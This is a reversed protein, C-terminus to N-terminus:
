GSSVQDLLHEDNGAFLKIWEFGALVVNLYEHGIRGTVHPPELTM